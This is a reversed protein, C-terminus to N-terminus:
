EGEQLQKLVEAIQPFHRGTKTIENPKVYDWMLGNNAMVTYDLPKGGSHKVCTVIVKFPADRNFIVEDGIKIEEEAKKQEEYAKIKEIAESATLEFIESYNLTGFIYEMEIGTFASQKSTVIKRAAEWADELGRRYAEESNDKLGQEFGKDFAEHMRDALDGQSETILEYIVANNKM